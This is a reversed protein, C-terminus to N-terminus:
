FCDVDIKEYRTIKEREWQLSSALDLV